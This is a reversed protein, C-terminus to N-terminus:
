PGYARTKGASSTVSTDTGVVLAPGDWRPLGFSASPGLKSPVDRALKVWLVLGLKAAVM